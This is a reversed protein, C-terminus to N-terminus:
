STAERSRRARLELGWRENVLLRLVDARRMITGKESLWEALLELREHGVGGLDVTYPHSGGPLMRPRGSPRPPPPPHAFQCWDAHKERLGTPVGCNCGGGRVAKSM